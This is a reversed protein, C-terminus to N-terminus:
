VKMSLRLPSIRRRLEAVGALFTGLAISHPNQLMVRSSHGSRAEPSVM